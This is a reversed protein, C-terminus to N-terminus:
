VCSVGVRWSLFVCNEVVSTVWCIKGCVGVYDSCCVYLMCAGYVHM